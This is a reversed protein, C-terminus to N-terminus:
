IAQMSPTDTFAFQHSLEGNSVDVILDDLGQLPAGRFMATRRLGLVALNQPRCQQLILSRKGLTGGGQAFAEARRAVARVKDPGVTIAIM